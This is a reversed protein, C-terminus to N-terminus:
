TALARMSASGQDPQRPTQESPILQSLSPANTLSRSTRKGPKDHCSISATGRAAASSQAACSRESALPAQVSGTQGKGSSSGSGPEYSSCKGDSSTVIQYVTLTCSPWSTILM